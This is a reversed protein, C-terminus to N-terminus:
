HEEKEYNGCQAAFARSTVQWAYNVALWHGIGWGKFARYIDEHLLHALEPNAKPPIKM